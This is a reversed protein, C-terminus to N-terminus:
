AMESSDTVSKPASDRNFYLTQSPFAFGSGNEQVIISFAFLVPEQRELFQAYDKAFFYAFIEVNLSAAGYEIFRVRLAEPSVFESKHLYDRLAELVKELDEMKTEYRLTLTTRLLFKRRMTYNEIRESSLVGNPFTVLTDNLTRIRTSRLGIHEITGMMEGVQCFDGVRFPQDVVVIVSGVINEIAKQAGLAIAIGGIGLAALGTSVDFGNTDLVLIVALVFLSVKAIARFFIVLSLSAARNKERLVHESHASVRDLLSWLFVFLAIWLLSITLISFDQRILISIGLFREIWLFVIVSLVIAIPITLAQVVFARRSNPKKATLTTAIRRLSIALIWGALFSLFLIAPMALWQGLPAGRWGRDLLSQPLFENIRPSILDANIASLAVITEQSVLWLLEGSSREVRELIIPIASDDIRIEGIQELNAGLNVEESGEASNSLVGMPLLQGYGDLLLPFSDVVEGININRLRNSLQTNFNARLSQTDQESIAALILRATDRPSFNAQNEATESSTNGVQTFAVGSNLLLAVLLVIRTTITKFYM